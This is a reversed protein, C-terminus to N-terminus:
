WDDDRGGDDGASIPAADGATLPYGALERYHAGEAGRDSRMLVLWDAVWPGLAFGAGEAVARELRWLDPGSLRPPLRALTVHPVFRRMVPAVGATICARVVAAQLRELQPDPAVLAHFSRPRRQGFMGLGALRLVPAPLALQGLALDVEALATAPQEGLFALTIHLNEPPVRRPLPLMQQAMALRRTVDGPLPLAIFSRIM